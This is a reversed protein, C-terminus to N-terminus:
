LHIDINNELGNIRGVRSNYDGLSVIMLGQQRLRLAEQTLLYFLDENWQLFDHSNNSQCAIYVHLLACKEKGNDMLLWQRENSVYQYKQPVTPTWQHPSLSPKYMICLGGGGKDSGGRETKWSSYGPIPTLISHQDSRGFTESVALVKINKNHIHKQLNYELSVDLKHDNLLQEVAWNAEIDLGNINIAGLKLSSQPLPPSPTKQPPKQALKQGLKKVIKQKHKIPNYTLRDIIKNTKVTRRSHKEPAM